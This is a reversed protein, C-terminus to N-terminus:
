GQVRLATIQSRTLTSMIITSEGKDLPFFVWGVREEGANVRTLDLAPYEAGNTPYALQLDDNGFAM